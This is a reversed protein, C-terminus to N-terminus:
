MAVGVGPIAIGTNYMCRTSSYGPVVPVLTYTCAHVYQLIAICTNCYPWVPIVVGTPPVPIISVPIEIEISVSTGTCTYVTYVTSTHCIAM